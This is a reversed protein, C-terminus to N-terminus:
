RAVTVDVSLFEGITRAAAWNGARIARELDCALPSDVGLEALWGSVTVAIAEAPVDATLGGRLRQTIRYVRYRPRQM